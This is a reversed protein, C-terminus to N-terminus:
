LDIVDCYVSKSVCGNWSTVSNEIDLKEGVYRPFFAYRIQNILNVFARLVIHFRLLSDGRVFITAVRM